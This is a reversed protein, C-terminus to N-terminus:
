LIIDSTTLAVKSIAKLQGNPRRSARPTASCADNSAALARPSADMAQQQRISFLTM